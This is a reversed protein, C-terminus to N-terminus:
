LTQNTATISSPFMQIHLVTWVSTSPSCHLLNAKLDEQTQTTVCCHFKDTQQLLTYDSSSMVQLCIQQQQTKHSVCINCSITDCEMTRSPHALPCNFICNDRIGDYRLTIGGPLVVAELFLNSDQCAFFCVSLWFIDYIQKNALARSDRKLPLYM